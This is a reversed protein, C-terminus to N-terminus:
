FVKKFLRGFGRTIKGAGKATGVTVNKGASVAGGGISEAGAIPHLTVLDVAGKGTGKALDGAGKAAGKGIDATGGGFDKGASGGAKKDRQPAPSQAAPAQTDNSSQAQSVAALCLTILLVKM